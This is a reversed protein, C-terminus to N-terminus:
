VVKLCQAMLHNLFCCRDDDLRQNLSYVLYTWPWLPHKGLQPLPTIAMTHMKDKILYHRAKPAGTFHKGALM